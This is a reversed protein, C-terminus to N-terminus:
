AEHGFVSSAMWCIARFAYDAVEVTMVGRNIMDRCFLGARYSIFEPVLRAYYINGQFEVAELRVQGGSMVDVLQEKTVAHGNFTLYSTFEQYRGAMELQKETGDEVEYNTFAEMMVHDEIPEVADHKEVVRTKFHLLQKWAGHDIAKEIDYSDEALKKALEEQREIVLCFKDLDRQLVGIYDRSAKYDPVVVKYWEEDIEPVKDALEWVMNDRDPVGLGGDEVRGHIITPPLSLWDEGDRIKCWHSVTSITFGQCMEESVGRRRLKGIQDLLGVVREKITARGAGEWDGAIFSALARTPSAYVVGDAITTRFFESRLGFMQKWKNANFLMADMVELFRPMYVPDSLGLDIDDGGHDLQVAVSVGFLREMNILAVHVYCFNLVTNIWTTGRWGSYLGRWIKHVKGERDELGMTMMGAVIAETFMTYDNPAVLNENLKSIVLGMEWASHQENFDAWDYLVHYVGTMMKRDIYRIDVENEANSRVSGVQLQAEALRLVYSFVIFHALTGPLLTRDKGGTEYKIMTKSINFNHENVGRLVEELEYMEFLSKKNHRSQIETVTAHVADIIQAWYKKQFSELTNHVLGGKTVWTARRNYFDGFSKLNVAKPKVVWRAYAEDCAKIFDDKYQRNTFMQKDTDYSLHQTDYTDGSRAEVEAMEDITYEHRGVMLDMYMLAQRDHETIETNMLFRSCRVLSHLTKLKNTWNSYGVQFWPYAIERVNPRLDLIGKWCSLLTTVFTQSEGVHWSAIQRADAHNFIDFTKILHSIKVNARTLEKPGLVPFIKLMDGEPDFSKSENFCPPLQGLAQSWEFMSIGFDFQTPVYSHRVYYDVCEKPVKGAEFLLRLQNISVSSDGAHKGELIWTPVDRAYNENWYASSYLHPAAVPVNSLNLVALFYAELDGRSNFTGQNPVLDTCWCNELSARSWNRSATERHKINIEHATKTLKLCGLITAGFERAAQETHVFMVVPRSYDLLDLTQNVRNFWKNNHEQWDANGLIIERRADAYLNHEAKSLLEDVDVMGYKEALWTKGCGAPMIFALLNPRKRALDDYRAMSQLIQRPETKTMGLQAREKYSSYARLYSARELVPSLRKDRLVDFRTAMYIAREKNPLRGRKKEREVVEVDGVGEPTTQLMRIKTNKVRM